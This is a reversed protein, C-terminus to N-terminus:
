IDLMRIGSKNDKAHNAFSCFLISRMNKIVNENPANCFNLRVKCGSIIINKYPRSNVEKNQEFVNEKEM